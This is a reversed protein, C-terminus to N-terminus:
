RAAEALFPELDGGVAAIALLGRWVGLRALADNIETQTLLRQAEAVESINGLGSEYRALAQRVAAQAAKQQVPTNAAVRRAGDLEAAARRWQTRLELAIQEARAQQARVAASQAAEKARIAGLDMLPITVTFGVAYNQTDPGLGNVGGLRGGDLLAGTGRASVAAQLAFKPFYTRALVRLQAQAQEVAAHQELVLPNATVAAAGTERAAPLTLLPGAAVAGTVPENGTFQALNARAVYLAQEAQIELTRAAALEAEARSADAGPRLEAAVQAGIVKQVTEAREVGALAGRVTEQAAVVTLYADAASVLLDFRARRLAAESQARAATAAAVSAGRLGFDFPEWSVLGGVASGWVTGFNNSGIVPGSIAPITSQPLLTGFLNNRTARNVQAMADVRPLYATRALRIGAAAADIQAQSVRLAPYNKAALELAQRLGPAEQAWVAGAAWVVMALGLKSM